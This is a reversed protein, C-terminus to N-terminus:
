WENEKNDDKQIFICIHKYAEHKSINSALVHLVPVPKLVYKDIHFILVDKSIVM